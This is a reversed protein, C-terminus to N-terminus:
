PPILPPVYSKPKPHYSLTYMHNLNLTTHYPPMYLKASDSRFLKNKIATRYPPITCYLMVYCLIAYCLMAYCLMAYCLMAYCLMVYCLIAYCLMAYCLMAHCPMAHCPMAHCLFAFCLMAYCLMAYRLTAYRLTHFLRLTYRIIHNNPMLNVHSYM